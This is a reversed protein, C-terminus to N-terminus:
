PRNTRLAARGEKICRDVKTYTWGTLQCIENYRYGLALLSLARLEAPKLRQLSQRLEATAESIEVREDPHQQFDPPARKAHFHQKGAVQSNNSWDRRRRHYLAWCRRKLTLTLWALPPTDEDPDFRDIFLFLADQLAEEADDANASNKNAIALLRSRHHIYLDAALSSARTRKRNDFLSTASAV